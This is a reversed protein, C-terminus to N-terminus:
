REEDEVEVLWHYVTKSADAPDPTEAAHLEYIKESRPKVAIEGEVDSAEATAGIRLFGKRLTSPGIMSRELRAGPEKLLEISEYQQLLKRVEPALGALVAEDRVPSAVVRFVTSDALLARAKAEAEQMSLSSIRATREAAQRYEAAARSMLWQLALMGVALVAVVFLM